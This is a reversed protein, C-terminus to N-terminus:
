YYSKRSSSGDEAVPPAAAPVPSPPPGANEPVPPAGQPTGGADKPAGPTNEPAASAAATMESQLKAILSEKFIKEGNIRTREGIFVLRKPVEQKKAALDKAISAKLFSQAEKLSASQAEKLKDVLAEKAPLAGVITERLQLASRRQPVYDEYKTYRAIDQKLFAITEQMMKSEDGMPGPMGAAPPNQGDAPSLADGQGAGAVPKAASAPPNRYRMKKVRARKRYKEPIKQPNDTFHVRGADDKWKYIGAADAATPVSFMGAALVLWFGIMAASVFKGSM